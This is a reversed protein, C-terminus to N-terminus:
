KGQAAGKALDSDAFGTAKGKKAAEQRALEMQKRKAITNIYTSLVFRVSTFFPEWVEPALYNQAVAITVPSTLWTIRMVKMFNARIALAIRDVGKAGNIYAMSALYVINAIVSVTLNSTIIQLIKDRVTTRGAFARQLAGTMVHGLPASVAFGYLFMKIVRANIGLAELHATVFRLPQQQAAKKENLQAPPRTSSAPAVGAFRGALVEALASLVGSTIMRPITSHTLM